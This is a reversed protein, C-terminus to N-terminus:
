SRWLAGLLEGAVEVVYEGGGPGVRAARSTWTEFGGHEFATRPIVYGVADNTGTVITQQFPSAQKVDLGLEVFPAGPLCALAYRGLRLTQVTVPVGYANEENLLAVDQEFLEAAQPAKLAVDPRNWFRTADRVPLIVREAAAGLRVMPDTPTELQVAMVASAVADAAPELPQAYSINGGCGGLYLCPTHRGVRADVRAQVLGPLGASLLGDPAFRNEAAFSWLLALPRGRGDRVVFVAFQPDTPGEPALVEDPPMDLWASIVKMNRTMLRHNYSLHPLTAQGLGLSADELRSQALAAAEPVQALVAAVITADTETVGPGTTTM